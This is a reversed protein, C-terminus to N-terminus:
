AWASRATSRAHNYIGHQNEDIVTGFWGFFMTALLLAGPIFAWGGAWDNLYSAGGLMLCFLAM